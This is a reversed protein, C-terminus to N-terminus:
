SLEEFYAVETAIKKAKRGRCFPLAEEIVQEIKGKKLRWRMTRVWQKKQADNWGSRLEAINGLHEVAHYFDAVRVIHKPSLGMAQALDQARRWIWLAGDGVIILELARTAGRLRLEAILLEFIADADGLTGDYLPRSTAVKRGQEDIIYATILKPERWPTRYRRRGSKRRRGRRGGARM